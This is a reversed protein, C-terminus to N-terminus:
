NLKLLKKLKREKKNEKEMVRKIQRNPASNLNYKDKSLFQRVTIFNLWYSYFKQVEKYPTTSTGFGPPKEFVDEDAEDEEEVIIAEFLKRYM